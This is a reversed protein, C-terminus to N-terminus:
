CGDWMACLLNGGWTPIVQYQFLPLNWPRVPVLPDLIKTLPHITWVLGSVLRRPWEASLRSSLNCPHSPSQRCIHCHCCCHHRLSPCVSGVVAIYSSSSPVIFWVPWDAKLRGAYFDAIKQLESITHGRECLVRLCIQVCFKTSFRQHQKCGTHVSGNVVIREMNQTHRNCPAGRGTHVPGLFKYRTAEYVCCDQAKAFPINM